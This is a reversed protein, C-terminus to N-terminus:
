KQLIKGNIVMIDINSERFFKEADEETELIPQNDGNLSTNILVPVGTIKEFEQILRYAHINTDKNITQFRATGDVHTVAPIIRPRKVPATYLMYPSPVPFDFWDEYKEELVIPAFPRFWERRKIVHNLIDRMHLNCPNAFISRNGLARPGFESKGMFWGVVKNEFIKQAIYAYYPEKHLGYDKGLYMLEQPSYHYRPEDLIDHAVYLAAGISGGDDSCAPFHHINSYKGSLLIKSNLTCNLLTGGSLCLNECNEPIDDFNKLTTFVSEELLLQAKAAVNVAKKPNNKINYNEDFSFNPDLDNANGYCALGMTSGAKFLGHGLGLKKTVENYNCGAIFEKNQFFEIKNGNAYAISSSQEPNQSSSADASFCFSRNFNSTYYASAVHSLQHPIKFIRSSSEQLYTNTTLEHPLCNVAVYDVDKLSIGAADLVYYTTENKTDYFDKKRKTLRETAIASLIKGDKVVCASADHHFNIGLIVSM